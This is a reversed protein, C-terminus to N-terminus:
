CGSGFNFLAELLDTDNVIGDHNLDAQADASGFAFLVTLLDADNVCGDDTADGARAPVWGLATPQLGAPYGKSTLNAVLTATAAQADHNLQVRWLIAGTSGSSALYLADGASDYALGGLV